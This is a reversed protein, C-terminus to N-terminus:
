GLFQAAGSFCRLIYHPLIVAVIQLKNGYEEKPLLWNTHATNSVPRPLYQTQGLIITRKMLFINKKMKTKRTLHPRCFYLCSQEMHMKKLEASQSFTIKKRSTILNNLFDLSFTIVGFSVIVLFLKIGHKHNKEAPRIQLHKNVPETLESSVSGNSIRDVYTSLWVSVFFNELFIVM